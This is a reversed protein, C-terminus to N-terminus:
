WVAWVKPNTLCAGILEYIDKIHPKTATPKGGLSWKVNVLAAGAEAAWVNPYIWPLPHTYGSPHSMCASPNILCGQSLLVRHSNPPEARPSPPPPRRPRGAGTWTMWTPCSSSAGSRPCATWCWTGSTTRCSRRWTRWTSIPSRSWSKPDSLLPSFVVSCPPPLFGQPLQGVTLFCLSGLSLGPLSPHLSGAM